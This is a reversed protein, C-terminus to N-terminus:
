FKDTFHSLSPYEYYYGNKKRLTCCDPEGCQSVRYEHMPNTPFAKNGGIEKYDFTMRSLFCGQLSMIIEIRKTIPVVIM